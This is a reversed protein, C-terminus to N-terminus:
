SMRLLYCGIQRDGYRQCNLFPHIRTTQVDIVTLMEFNEVRLLELICADANGKDDDECAKMFEKRVYKARIWNERVLPSESETPRMYFCPANYEYIEAARVNGMRKM